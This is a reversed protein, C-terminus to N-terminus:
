PKDVHASVEANRAIGGTRAPEPPVISFAVIPIRNCSAAVTPRDFITMWELPIPMWVLSTSLNANVLKWIVSEVM